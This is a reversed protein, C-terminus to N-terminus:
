LYRLKVQEKIAVADELTALATGPKLTTATGTAVAYKLAEEDSFGMHKAYIFGAVASDGAGITNVVKVDPPTAHMIANQSVYVIGDKGLSVLVIRVGMRNIEKAAIVADEITKVDRGVVRSLEHKNPKIIDPKHSINFKLAEGDTDLVVTASRSKAIDIIKSYVAPKLGEPLSGSIVVYSPNDLNNVKDMLKTLEFPPITPGKASIIIQNNNTNIIINTRTEESIRIFDFNVGENILLGEIELGAFGGVFGLAVSPVGFNILVRSVDIGKGGAYKEEKLIRNTDDQKLEDLWITRDLAPNLTITYIM